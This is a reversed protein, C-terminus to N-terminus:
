FRFEDGRKRGKFVPAFLDDFTFKQRTLGQDHAYGAIANINKSTASPPSPEGRHRRSKPATGCHHRCSIFPCNSSQPCPTSV